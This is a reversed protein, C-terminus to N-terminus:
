RLYINFNVHWTCTNHFVESFRDGFHKKIAEFIYMWHEDDEYGNNKQIGIRSCCNIYNKDRVAEVEYHSPLIEKIFVIDQEAIM